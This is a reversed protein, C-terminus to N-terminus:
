GTRGAGATQWEGVIWGCSPFNGKREAGDDSIDISVM